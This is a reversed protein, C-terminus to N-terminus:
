HIIDEEKLTDPYQTFIDMFHQREEPSLQDEPALEDVMELVLRGFRHMFPIELHRELIYTIMGAVSAATGFALASEADGVMKATGELVMLRTAFDMALAQCARPGGTLKSKTPTEEGKEPM